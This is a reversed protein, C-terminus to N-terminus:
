THVYSFLLYKSEITQITDILNKIDLLHFTLILLIAILGIRALTKFRNSSVCVDYLISLGVSLSAKSKGAKREEFTFPVECVKIRPNKLLIEALTKWKFPKFVTNDFVEKKVAFFGSIPDTINKSIGAFRFVKIFFWSVFRRFVSLGKPKQGLFRSAIALDYGEMVKEVLQPVIEPPHSGDGDMVVIIDSSSVTVGTLIARELSDGYCKVIRADDVSPPNLSKDGYVVIVEHNYGSLVEHLRRTLEGVYPEDRVPIIVSVKM